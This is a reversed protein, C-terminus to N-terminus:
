LVSKIVSSFAHNFISEDVQEAEEIDIAVDRSHYLVATFYSIRMNESNSYNRFNIVITELHVTNSFTKKIYSIVPEELTGSIYFSSHLM